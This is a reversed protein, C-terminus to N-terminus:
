VTICWRLNSIADNKRSVIQARGDRDQKMVYSYGLPQEFNIVGKAEVKRSVESEM